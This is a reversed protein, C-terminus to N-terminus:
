ITLYILILAINNRRFPDAGYGVFFKVIQLNSSRIAYTLVDYIIENPEIGFMIQNPNFGNSMLIDLINTANQDIALMLIIIDENQNRGVIEYFIDTMNADLLLSYCCNMFRINSDFARAISLTIIESLTLNEPHETHYKFITTNSINNMVERSTKIKSNSYFTSYIECYEGKTLVM